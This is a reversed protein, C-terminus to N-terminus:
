SPSRKSIALGLGHRRIQAHDVLGGALVVPVAPGHRRGLPRHRHRARRVHARGGGALANADRHARGRRAGHVQGRQVPTSSSRACRTVDGVIRRPVDGEFVYGHRSAERRARPSSTSRPSSASRLDFPQAEIDMRGAEIKSFDLIDNIITLLTDGSDRITSAYDRQEDDLKTDLLL